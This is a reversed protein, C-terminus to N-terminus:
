SRGAALLMAVELFAMAVELFARARVRQIAM